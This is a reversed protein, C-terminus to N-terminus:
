RALVPLDLLERVADPYSIPAALVHPEWASSQSEVNITHVLMERLTVHESLRSYFWRNLAAQRQELEVTGGESVRALMGGWGIDLPRLIRAQIRTVCRAQADIWVRGAIGTLGETLLTPAKFHPDPTFDLVVQPGQMEPLQPQGPAYSWLMARPLARVLELAYDRGARDHRHRRLFVDPARLMDNLRDREANDQAATLPKGDRQVLRAVTGERSEIVARTTDGRASAKRETFRLPVSTGGANLIREQNAAGAEAWARPSQKLLDPAPASTPPAPQAAQGVPQAALGGGLALLLAAVAIVRKTPAHCACIAPTRPM